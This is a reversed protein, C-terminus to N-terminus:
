KGYGSSPETTGTSMRGATIAARATFGDILAEFRVDKPNGQRRIVEEQIKVIAADRAANTAEDIPSFEPPPKWIRCPCERFSSGSSGHASPFM